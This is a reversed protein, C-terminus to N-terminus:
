LFSADSTALLLTGLLGTPLFLPKEGDLMQKFSLQIDGSHGM